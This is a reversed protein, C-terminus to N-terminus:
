IVQMQGEHGVSHQQAELRGFGGGNDHDHDWWCTELGDVVLNEDEIGDDNDDDHGSMM